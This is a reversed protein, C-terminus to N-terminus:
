TLMFTSIAAPIFAGCRIETIELHFHTKNGVTTLEDKFISKVQM